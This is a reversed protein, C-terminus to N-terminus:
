GIAPAPPNVPEPPEVAPRLILQDLTPRRRKEFPALRVPRGSRASEQLAVIVRVDALGERGSPEPETDELICRSFYLLEPAFQDRNPFTKEETKGDLTLRHKLEVGYNFGPDVLLDGKTGVIRYASTASAAHSIGFQAIRGESFRLLAFATADVGHFRPDQDEVTYAFVETPEDAFLYRAANIPYPGEDLLAGGGVDIRTRIDGERVQQTLLASFM